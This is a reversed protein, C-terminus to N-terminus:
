SIKETQLNKLSDRLAKQARHVLVGYLLTAALGVISSLLPYVLLIAPNFLHAIVLLITAIAAALRVGHTYGLGMALKQSVVLKV